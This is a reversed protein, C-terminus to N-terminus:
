MMKQSGMNSLKRVQVRCSVVLYMNSLFNNAVRGIVALWVFYRGCSISMMWHGFFQKCPNFRHVFCRVTPELCKINHTTGKAMALISVILQLLDFIRNFCHYHEDFIINFAPMRKKFDLVVTRSYLSALAFSLVILKYKHKNLM